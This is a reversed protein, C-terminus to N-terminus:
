IFRSRMAVARRTHLLALASAGLGTCGAALGLIGGVCPVSECVTLLLVGMVSALVPSRDPSGSLRFLGEGIWLGIAVTGLVWALWMAIGLVLAVPIGICTIFLVLAVVVGIVLTALGAVFSMVPARRVVSRVTRLQHPFFIAALAGALGWFLMNWWHIVFGGTFGLWSLPSVGHFVYGHEINGGVIATPAKRVDGGLADVNGGVDASAGLIISGGVATVNGTVAGNVIASGGVVTVNGTVGGNVIASGGYVDVNGCIQDSGRVTLSDGWVTRDGSACGAAALAAGSVPGAYVGPQTLLKATGPVASVSSLSQPAGLLAVLGHSLAFLGGFFVAALTAFTVFLIMPVLHWRPTPRRHTTPRDPASSRAPCPSVPM